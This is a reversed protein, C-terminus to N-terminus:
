SGSGARVLRFTTFSAALSRPDDKEFTEGPAGHGGGHDGHNWLAYRLSLVNEGQRARVPVSLTRYEPFLEADPLSVLAGNVAAEVRQGPIPSRATLELVLAEEAPAEFRLSTEPGYGWRFRTEGAKESPGLGVAALPVDSDFAPDPAEFALNMSNFRVAEPNNYLSPATGPSLMRVTVDLVRFPATRGLTLTPTISEAVERVNIGQRPAEGDFAYSLEFLADPATRSLILGLDVNPSFRESPNEVRFTFSAQSGIRGPYLSNGLPSFYPRLDRAERVRRFFSEPDSTIAFAQPLADLTLAPTRPIAFGELLHGNLSREMVKPFGAEELGFMARSDALDFALRKVLYFSVTADGPEVSNVRPDGFGRRMLEWRVFDIQEAPYFGAVMKETFPNPLALAIPRQSWNHNIFGSDEEYLAHHKHTILLVSGGVAIVAALLPAPIPVLQAGRAVFLLLFPLIFAIHQPQYIIGYRLAVLAALPLVALATLQAAAGPRRVWLAALGALSLAAMAQWVFPEAVVDLLERLNEVTRTATWLMSNGGLAVGPFKGMRVAVPAASVALCAGLGALTWLGAGAPVVGLLMAAGAVAFLSGVVLGGNFHWLVTFFGAAVLLWANRATPRDLFSVLRLTAVLTLLIVLAHPRVARSLAVHLLDVSLLAAAVLGAGPSVLRAGLRYLAYVAAVGSAASVLRVSFDDSAVSIVLKNLFYYFPPHADTSLSRLLIYGWDQAAAGTVLAEDHLLMPVGLAYLRAFAAALLILALVAPVALTAL